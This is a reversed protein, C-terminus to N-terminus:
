RHPYTRRFPGDYLEVRPSDDGVDPEYLRWSTEACRSARSSKSGGRKRLDITRSSHPLSHKIRCTSHLVYIQKLFLQPAQFSQVLLGLADLLIDICTSSARILLHIELRYKVCTSLTCLYKFSIIVFTSLAQILMLYEVECMTKPNLRPHYSCRPVERLDHDPLHGRGDGM